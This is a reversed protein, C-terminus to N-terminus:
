ASGVALPGIWSLGLCVWVAAMGVIESPSGFATASRSGLSMAVWAVSTGTGAGKPLADPLSVDVTRTGNQVSPDIRIM